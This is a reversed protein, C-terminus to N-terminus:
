NSKRINDQVYRQYLAAPQSSQRNSNASQQQKQTNTSTNNSQGKIEGGGGKAGGTEPKGGRNMGGMMARAIDRGIGSISAGGSLASAITSLNLMVIALAGSCMLLALVDKIIATAGVNNNIHAAFQSAFSTLMAISAGVLVNLLVFQMAQGIWSETYKQTPGFLACFIFAPGVALVLALSVKALLYMGLGVVFLFAQAVAVIGAAALLSFNPWFGTTAESWLKQGLDDYPKAMNDILGGITAANGFATIFAGQIGEIFNVAYAQYNGATLAISVIMAIKFMKWLATHFSDQADGRMIAWGITIIYITVGTLALPVLAGCVAASKSTVYNALLLDISQEIKTAIGM